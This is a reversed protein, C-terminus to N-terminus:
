AGGYIHAEYSSRLKNAATEVTVLKGSKLIAARDIFGASFDLDHTAIVIIVGDLRLERLRVSLSRMAVDDLGTFPEDLLVLRPRHMLAREIAVRQRMGRSFKSIPEHGRDVIGSRKLASDVTQYLDNVGYLRAFFELNERASLEPYLHLDHGLLGIRARLAAGPVGPAVGGYRIEGSSPDLLTSLLTLFTSKGAGNPGFVGLIEGSECTLSVQKLAYRRGYAHSVNSLTVCDFDLLTM